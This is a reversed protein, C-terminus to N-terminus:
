PATVPYLDLQFRKSELQVTELLYESAASLPSGDNSSVLPAISLGTWILNVWEEPKTSRNLRVTFTTRHKGLQTDLATEVTVTSCTYPTTIAVGNADKVASKFFLESDPDLTAITQIETTSKTFTWVGATPYARIITQDASNNNQARSLILEQQKARTFPSACSQLLITTIEDTTPEAMGQDKQPDFEQNAPSEANTGSEPVSGQKDSQNEKPEDDKPKLGNGVETGLCSSMTMLLLLTIWSKM